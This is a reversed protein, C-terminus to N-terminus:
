EKESFLTSCARVDGQNLIIYYFYKLLFADIVLLHKEHTEEFNIQLTNNFYFIFCNLTLGLGTLIKLPLLREFNM